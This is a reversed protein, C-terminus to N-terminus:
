HETCARVKEIPVTRISQILEKVAQMAEVETLRCLYQTHRYEEQQTDVEVTEDHVKHQTSITVNGDMGFPHWISVSRM